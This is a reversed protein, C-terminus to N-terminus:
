KDIVSIAKELHNNIKGFLDIAAKLEEATDKYGSEDAKLAWKEIDEVHGKNHALLYPLLKKLKGAVSEKDDKHTHNHTHEIKKKKLIVYNEMLDVVGVSYGHLTKSEGFLTSIEVEHDRSEV